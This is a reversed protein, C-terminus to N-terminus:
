EGQSHIGIYHVELKDGNVVYVHGRHRRIHVLEETDRKMHSTTGSDVMVSNSNM